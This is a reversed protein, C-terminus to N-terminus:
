FYFNNNNYLARQIENITIWPNLAIMYEDMSYAAYGEPLMIGRLDAFSRYLRTLYEEDRKWSELNYEVSLEGVKTKNVMSSANAIQKTQLVIIQALDRDVIPSIIQLDDWNVGSFAFRLGLRM